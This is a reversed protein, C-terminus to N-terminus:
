DYELKIVYFRRHSASTIYLYDNNLFLSTPYGAMGERRTVLSQLFQGTDSFLAIRRNYFDAVYVRGCSDTTLDHPRHLHGDGSGRGGVPPFLRTGNRAFYHIIASTDCVVIMRDTLISIGKPENFQSDSRVLLKSSTINYDSNVTIEYLGSNDSVVWITLGNIEIRRMYGIGTNITKIFAGDEHIVHISDYGYDSIFLKDGENAVGWFNKQM